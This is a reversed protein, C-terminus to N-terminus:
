CLTVRMCSKLLESSAILLLGVDDKVYLLSQPFSLRIRNDSGVLSTPIAIGSIVSVFNQFEDSSVSSCTDNFARCSLVDLRFPLLM